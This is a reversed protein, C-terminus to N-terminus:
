SVRSIGAYSGAELGNRFNVRAIGSLSVDVTPSLPAQGGVPVYCFTAGDNFIGSQVELHFTSSLPPEMGAGASPDGWDLGSGDATTSLFTKLEANTVSVTYPGLYTVTMTQKDFAVNRLLSVTYAVTALGSLVAGWLIINKGSPTFLAYNNVTGPQITPVDISYYEDKGSRKVWLETINSPTANKIVKLITYGKQDPADCSLVSLPEREVAYKSPGIKYGVSYTGPSGVVEVDVVTGDPTEGKTKGANTIKIIETSKTSPQQVRMLQEVYSNVTDTVKKKIWDSGKAM